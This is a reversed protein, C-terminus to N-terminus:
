GGDRLAPGRFAPGRERMRKLREEIEEESLGRQRMRERIMELREPTMESPDFRRGGPPREGVGPGPPGPGGTRDEGGGAGGPRAGPGPAEGSPPGRRREGAAAAPAEGLPQVPTGDALGDQGVVVVPEGEALGATVEVFDGERFGLTVERRSAAGGEAVYVVDGISELSLAAKPIVLADDRRETEVFVRAFMGPRLVGETAVELTVRVTGTAADVVPRIREVRAAFRREPWAELTLYAGQGVELKVLDKEPVQIPCLLPEFDSVRFLPTNVAVHEAFNVYRVVVLAGFPARIKTYGLQILDEEYQAQATDHRTVAQEWAQPSILASDLLNKAREWAQKAEALSARSVEARANLERDDIRALVEGKGVKRGEEVNLEVIPGSIRAVLDVENEAELTGNTEIYSSIARREVAAVEVPVATATEGGGFMGPPGGRSSGPPGGRSGGPRGGQAADDGSCGTTLLLVALLIAAPFRTM